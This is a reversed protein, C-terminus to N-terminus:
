PVMWAVELIKEGVLELGRPVSNFCSVIPSFCIGRSELKKLQDLLCISRLCILLPFSGLEIRVHM